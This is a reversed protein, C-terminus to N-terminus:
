TENADDNETLEQPRVKREKREDEREEKGEQGRDHLPGQLVVLPRTSGQLSGLPDPRQM